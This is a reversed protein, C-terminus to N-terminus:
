HTLELALVVVLTSELAMWLQQHTVRVEYGVMVLTACFRESLCVGPAQGGRGATRIAGLLPTAPWLLMLVVHHGPLGAAGDIIVLATLIVARLM